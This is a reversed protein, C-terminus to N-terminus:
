RAMARSVRRTRLLWYLGPTCARLFSAATQIAYIFVNTAPSVLRLAARSQFQETRGTRVARQSLGGCEFLCIPRPVYLAAGGRALVRATLDYDAAIRYRLDYHLTKLAKGHYFIAQHHTFLGRAITTHSRAPKLAPPCGPREREELADGYVLDFRDQGIAARIDSLVREDALADGANLFLVYDGCALDKGKNMADYIGKDPESLCACPFDSRRNKTFDDLFDPTGDTSAGDVVIWEFDRTKQALLSSLTKRVGSLNNRTVTILSFLPPANEGSRNKRM